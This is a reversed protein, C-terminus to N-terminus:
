TEGEILALYRARRQPPVEFVERETWGYRSALVHVERLLRLQLESLRKLAVDELDVAVECAASCAPCICSLHFAVLPDCSALAEALVPADAPTIAGDVHLARLISVAAEDHTAYEGARWRRLDEGTPRRMQVVRGGPLDLRVTPAATDRLADLPLEVFIQEGCECSTCRIPVAIVGTGETRALLQLIAAVRAGVPQAWWFTPDDPPACLDLLATVLAPRDSGGFEIDLDEACGFPRTQM